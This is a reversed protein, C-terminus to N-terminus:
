KANKSQLNVMKAYYKNKKLLETHTGFEVLSGKDLVFITDADKISSLKHAVVITTTNESLKDLSKSINAETVADLASTAEDLLLIPAPKLFARALAIRQKQGGSLQSGNPGVPSDKREFLLNDIKAKKAAGIIMETSALPNAYRINDELSQDFIVIDQSVITIQDRVSSISLKSIDHGNFSITGSDLEYLRGILSLITTKGSGTSGVIANKTGPKFDMTINKLTESGSTYNFNVNKLRIAIPKNNETYSPGSNLKEAEIDFISHVSELLILSSQLQTFFQAVSRAPDFVIVLGILFAIISAGDMDFQDSLAMYGGGGVVLMYVFASSLDIVPPTLAHTRMLKYTYARILNASGSIRQAEAEEQATMKTTRMGTKMEDINSIFKGIATETLAQMKRVRKVVAIMLFAILPIVVLAISFLLINKYILYGSVIVVTATDRMAKVTTQGVFTSLEQVQNVLRLILDGSSARDFYSQPLRLIHQTLDHRLELLASTSLKASITPIVFSTFARVTFIILIALCVWILESFTGSSFIVRLGSETLVLFQQYVFGQFIILLLVFILWKARARMYSQWFWTLNKKDRESFFRNLM